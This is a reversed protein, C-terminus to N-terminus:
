KMENFNQNDMFKYNLTRTHKHKMKEGNRKFMKPLSLM